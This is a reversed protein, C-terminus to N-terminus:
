LRSHYPRATASKCGHGSDRREFSPSPAANRIWTFLLTLHPAAFPNRSLIHESSMGQLGQYVLSSPIYRDRVVCGGRALVPHILREFHQARDRAFLDVLVDGTAGQGALHRGQRGFFSSTPEHTYAVRCGLRRRLARVLRTAATTKGVGDPGEIVVFLGNSPPAASGDCDSLM